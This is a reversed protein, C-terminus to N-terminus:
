SSWWYKFFNKDYSSEPVYGKQRLDSATVTISANQDGGSVSISNDFLIGTDFLDKVNNPKHWM